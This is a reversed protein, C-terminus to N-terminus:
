KVVHLIRHKNDAAPERYHACYSGFLLFFFHRILPPPNWARIRADQVTDFSSNILKRETLRLFILPDALNKNKMM